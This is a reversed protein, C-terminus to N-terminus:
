IIGLLFKYTNTRSFNLKKKGNTERGFASYMLQVDKSIIRPIVAMLNENIKAVGKINLVMFCKQFNIIISFLFVLSQSTINVLQKVLEIDTELKKDFDQFNELTSKPLDIINYEKLISEIEISSNKAAFLSRTIKSEEKIRYEVSRKLSELDAKSVPFGNDSLFLIIVVKM